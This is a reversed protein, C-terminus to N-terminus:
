SMLKFGKLLQRDGEFCFGLMKEYGVIGDVIEGFHAEGM